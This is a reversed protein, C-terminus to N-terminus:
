EQYLNLERQMKKTLGRSVIKHSEALHDRLNADDLGPADYHQIWKM